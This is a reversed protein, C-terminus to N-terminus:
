AHVLETPPTTLIATLPRELAAAVAHLTDLTPNRTGAELGSLTAKGLSARRALESLSWGREIRLAAVRPGVMAGSDLAPREGETEPAM